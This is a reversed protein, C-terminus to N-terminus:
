SENQNANEYFRILMRVVDAKKVRFKRIYALDERYISVPCLRSSITETPILYKERLEKTYEKFIRTGVHYKYVKNITYSVSCHSEKNFLVAIESQTMGHVWLYTYLYARQYVHRDTKRGTNLGLRVIDQKIEELENM